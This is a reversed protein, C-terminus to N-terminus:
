IVKLNIYLKRPSFFFGHCVGVEDDEEKKTDPLVGEYERYLSKVWRSSRCVYAPPGLNVHWM